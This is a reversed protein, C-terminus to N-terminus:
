GQSTEKGTSATSPEDIRDVIITAPLGVKPTLPEMYSPVNGISMLEAPPYRTIVCALTARAGALFQARVLSRIKKANSFESMLTLLTPPVANLPFM